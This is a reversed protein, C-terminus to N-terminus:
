YTQIPREEPVSGPEIVSEKRGTLGPPIGAGEAAEVTELADEGTEPDRGNCEGAVACVLVEEELIIM